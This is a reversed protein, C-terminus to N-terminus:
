GRRSTQQARLIAGGTLPADLAIEIGRGDTVTARGAACLPVLEPRAAQLADRVTSGAPLSCPRENVFVRLEAPM